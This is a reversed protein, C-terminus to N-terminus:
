RNFHRENVLAEKLIGIKRKADTVKERDQVVGVESALVNVRNSM